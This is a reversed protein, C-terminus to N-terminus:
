LVIVCGKMKPLDICHNEKSELEDQYRPNCTERLDRYYLSKMWVEVQSLASEKRRQM